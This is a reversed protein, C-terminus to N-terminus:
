IVLKVLIQPDPKRNLNCNSSFNLNILNCFLQNWSMVIIKNFNSPIEHFVSKVVKSYYTYM